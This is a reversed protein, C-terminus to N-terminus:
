MTWDFVLGRFTWIMVIIESNAVKSRSYICSFTRYFKVRLHEVSFKLFKAAIVHVGFYKLENVYLIDEGALQLAAWREGYRSGIRVAVSKSSNFKIDSNEAVKDYIHFMMQM